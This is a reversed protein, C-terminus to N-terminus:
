LPTYNSAALQWQTIESANRITYNWANDSLCKLTLNLWVSLFCNFKKGPTRTVFDHVRCGFPFFYVFQKATFAWLNCLFMQLLHYNVWWVTTSSLQWVLCHYIIITVGFLSLHYNDWWVTTSSLQWMLCHYIIITGDFLPLHYNDWWVTTSSLQWMLCHYIIKGLPSKNM